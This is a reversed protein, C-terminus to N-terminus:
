LAYNRPCVTSTLPVSSDNKTFTISIVICRVESATVTTTNDEKLYTFSLNSAGAALIQSNRMLDTGVISYTISVGDNTTFTIQNSQPSLDASTASRANRLEDSMRELAFRARSRAQQEDKVIFGTKFAYDFLTTGTTFIIGLIIIVIVMEILTAGRNRHIM